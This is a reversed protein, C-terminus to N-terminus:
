SLKGSRMARALRELAERLDQDDIAALQKQLAGAREPPLPPPASLPARRKRARVPAQQLRLRAVLSYGFHTNIREVLLDGSHQLDLAMSPDVRLHLTAERREARKPFSLKVPQTYTSVQAGVIEEWDTLLAAEARSFGRLAPRTLKPVLNALARPGKFLRDERQRRM